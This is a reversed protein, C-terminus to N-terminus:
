ESTTWQGAPLALTRHRRWAFPDLGADPQVLWAEGAAPVRRELLPAGGDLPVLAFTTGDLRALLALRESGAPRPGRLGATDLEVAVHNEGRALELQRVLLLGDLAGGAVGLVLWAPGPRLEELAFRGDSALPEEVLNQGSRENWHRDGPVCRASALGYGRGDLTLTGALRATEPQTLDIDHVTTAGARVELAFPLEAPHEGGVPEIASTGADRPFHRRRGTSVLYRGPTLHDIRYRGSADTVGPLIHGDGRSLRVTYGAPDSGPPVRVHGVVEGGQTLELVVREDRAPDLELEGSEAAAFGGAEARLVFTGTALIPLDFEGREDTAVRRFSQRDVRSPLGDVRQWEGEPLVRALEVSGAVPRGDAVVRGRVRALPVLRVDLETPPVDPAFRGLAQTRFGEARLILRCPHDPLEFAGRGTADQVIEARAALIGEGEMHLEYLPVPAGTTDRVTLHLLPADLLRLELPGEGARVRRLTRRARTGFPDGDRPGSASLDYEVGPTVELAFDGDQGCTGSAFCGVGDDAPAASVQAGIAAAGDPGLVRGTLCLVPDARAVVLELDLAEAGALRLVASPTWRLGLGGGFVRWLGAPVGEFVFRGDAGSETEAVMALGDSSQRYGAEFRVLRAPHGALPEGAPGLLRGALTGTRALLFDGLTHEARPPSEEWDAETLRFWREMPAFGDARAVLLVRKDQLDLAMLAGDIPDEPHPTAGLDLGALPDFPVPEDIVLAVHGDADSWAPPVHPLIPIELTGRLARGEVDLLRARLTHVRAAPAAGAPAASLLPERAPGAEPAAALGPEPAGAIEATLTTGEHGAGARQRDIWWWVGLVLALTAVLGPALLAVPASPAARRESGDFALALLASRGRGHDPWERELRRRVVALGRSVRQRANEATIGQRRAIEEPALDEVYRMLVAARYPEELELVAAMLQKQLTARELIEAPSSDEHEARASDHERRLRARESRLIRVAISRAVRTLWRRLGSGASARPPRTSAIIWTEQVVDEVLGADTVLQRAIARVWDLEALLREEPIPNSHPM